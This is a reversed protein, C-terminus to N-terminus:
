PCTAYMSANLIRRNRYIAERASRQRKARLKTHAILRAGPKMRPASVSQGCSQIPMEGLHFVTIPWNSFSRVGSSGGFGRAPADTGNMVRVRSTTVLVVCKVYRCRVAM